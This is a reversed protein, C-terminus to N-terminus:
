PRLAKPTRGLRLTGTLVRAAIQRGGPAKSMPTFFADRVFPGLWGGSQFMPTLWRSMFQYLGAHRRRSAQFGRVSRPVDDDLREALEVADILGMNAGQGLQPSTGHAADGILVFPGDSWRGVQVDRYSARTFQEPTQFQEIIPAAQPWMAKARKRWDGLDGSLFRDMATVPMSWFFSVLQADGGDPGPGIPLVGMMTSARDYRQSLSGAFAGTEDRANAWVAGWPYLPAKAHPRLQGRLRSASGDAVVVLDFPGHSQGATDILVAPSHHEISAVDVGTRLEVGGADLGDHLIDFLTARHVGVGFAGPRWDAYRMDMILRGRLDRGDLREVRAGRAIVQEALGLQRLAALGSPQLLLGSGLPRPQQFAELLVVAHGKRALARAAAM